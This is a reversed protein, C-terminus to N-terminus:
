YHAALSCEALAAAPLQCHTSGSNTALQDIQRRCSARVAANLSDEERKVEKSLSLTRNAVLVVSHFSYSIVIHIAFIDNSVVGNLGSTTETLRRPYTVIPGM